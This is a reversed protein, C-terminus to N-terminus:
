GIQYRPVITQTVYADSLDRYYGVERLRQKFASVNERLAQRDEISPTGFGDGVPLRDIYLGYRQRLFTLLDDVRIEATHYAGAADKQLVAIQLLVELM